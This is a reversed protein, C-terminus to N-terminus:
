RSINSLNARGKYFKWATTVFLLLIISVSALINYEMGILEFWMVIIPFMVVITIIWPIILAYYLGLGNHIKFLSTWKSENMRFIKKMLYFVSLLMAVYFLGVIISIFVYSLILMLIEM